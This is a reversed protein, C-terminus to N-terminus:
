RPGDGQMLQVQQQLWDVLVVAEESSLAGHTMIVMGSEQRRAHLVYADGALTNRRIWIWYDGTEVEFDGLRTM